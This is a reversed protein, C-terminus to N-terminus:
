RVPLWGELVTQIFGFNADLNALTQVMSNGKALPPSDCKPICLNLRGVGFDLFHVVKLFVVNNQFLSRQVEM